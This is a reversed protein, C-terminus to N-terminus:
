EPSRMLDARLREDFTQKRFCACEADDVEAADQAKGYGSFPACPSPAQGEAFGL